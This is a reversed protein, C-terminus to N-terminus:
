TRAGEPRARLQPPRPRRVRRLLVIAILLNLTNWAAGNVFAAHYSGTFDFVKGSMWGELAMGCLTCM